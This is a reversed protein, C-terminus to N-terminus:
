MATTVLIDSVEVQKFFFLFFPPPFFRMKQKVKIDPHQIKYGNSFSM